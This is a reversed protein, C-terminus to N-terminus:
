FRLSQWTAAEQKLLDAKEAQAAKATDTRLKKAAAEDGKRRAELEFELEEDARLRKVREEESVHETAHKAKAAARAKADAEEKDKRRQFAVKLKNFASEDAVAKYAKDLIHFADSTKPLKCKDPHVLLSKSRFLKTFAGFELTTPDSIELVTFVDAKTTAFKLLRAIEAAQADTSMLPRHKLTRFFSKCDLFFFAAFVSLVAIM